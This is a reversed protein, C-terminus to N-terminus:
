IFSVLTCRQCRRFLFHIIGRYRVKRKIESNKIQYFKGLFLMNRNYDILARSFIIGIVEGNKKAEKLNNDNIIIILHNMM